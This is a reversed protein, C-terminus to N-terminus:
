DLLGLARGRAVAARRTQVDLKRYLSKLHAKVTNVSVFLEEAIETNSAMSPLAALVSLERETLPVPLPEPEPAPEPAGVHEALAAAFADSRDPLVRAVADLGLAGPVVFPRLVREPGAVALARGALDDALRPAGRDEFLAALLLCAETQTLVDGVDTSWGAAVRAHRLAAPADGRARARRAAVLSDLPSAIRAEAPGAGPEAGTLEALESAARLRLAAVLPPVAGTPREAALAHAAARVRGRALAALAQVAHLVALSWPDEGAETAALGYAVERDADAWRGRLLAVWALAAYAPRAHAYSAWGSSAAVDVAARAVRQAADLDGLVGHAFALESRAGLSTLDVADPDEAISAALERRAGVADGQWLLAGGRLEHASRLYALYAPFPWPVRELLEGVADAERLQGPADGSGRAATADLLGALVQSAVPLPGSGRPRALARVRAVHARTAPYARDLAALAAACLESWAAPPAEDYPLRLLAQRVAERAPTVLLPAAAEALVRGVLEGDEAETAHDLAAVPDGHRLLWRAACAHADQHGEPDRVRLTTHLIERLLPHYRLAAGAPAVPGVFDHAAALADHLRGPPAGPSLARALEPTFTPVVGSRLLFMRVGGPQRDVVEDVLYDAVARDDALAEDVDAETPPEDVGQLRALRSLAIRVGTPWGQTRELVQRAREATVDVGEVAGLARVDAVTFALDEAALRTADRRGVPPDSRSLLLLRLPVDAAVLDRVTHVVTHHRVVDLDDVVLTADAPLEALGRMWRAVFAPTSTPPVRLRALEHDPPVAGSARLADLVRSALAQPVTDRPELSLWAVPGPQAAAWSAVATTKGWGAGAAVVTLRGDGDADLLRDM